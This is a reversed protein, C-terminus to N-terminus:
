DRVVGFSLIKSKVPLARPAGPLTIAESVSWVDFAVLADQPRGTIEHHNKLFDRVGGLYPKFRDESLRREFYYWECNRFQPRVAVDFSPASGTLPDFHRGDKTRGDVVVAVDDLPPSPAFMSWGQFLRPYVVVASMWAPRHNPKLWLPVAQNEILVQSGCCVLLLVVAGEGLRSWGRRLFERAPSPASDESVPPATLEFYAAYYEPSREARRIARKVLKSLGPLHLWAVSARGFPLAEALSFLGKLGRARRQTMPEVAVFRGIDEGAAADFHIRDLVDFQKIVRCAALALPSTEDVRLEREPRRARLRERLAQWAERPILAFFMVVMAWSFTGLHLVAAISLHLVCVLGWALMRALPPRIPVVLLIAVCTEIVLAGFSLLRIASLSLSGGLWAGLTTLMGHQHLAYYVATGDRWPAGNKQLANFAYIVFWQLVLALVAFSVIPEAVRTLPRNLDELTTQRKERLSRAVADISFRRGLPLFMSWVALLTLVVWGGNEIMVNRSNLSALMVAALVQMIRTRFGLILLADVLLQLALLVKVQGPSSCTLYLSFLHESMPRFLMFHNPLWGTNAYHADIDPYRRAADVFLLAGLAIRFLGLSRPDASAYRTSLWRLGAHKGAAKSDPRESM